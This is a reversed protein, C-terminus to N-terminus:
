VMPRGYMWGETLIEKGLGASSRVGFNYKQPAGKFWGKEKLIELTLDSELRYLELIKYALQSGSGGTKLTERNNFSRNNLSDLDDEALEGPRKGPGIIACYRIASIPATEYIWIRNVTAPILYKRFEHNKVQAVINDVHKPYISILIDTPPIKKTM